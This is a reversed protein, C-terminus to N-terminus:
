KRKKSIVFCSGAFALVIAAVSVTSGCGSKAPETTDAPAQTADNGPAETADDGPAETTIEETTAAETTIEETTTAAIPYVYNEFAIADIAKQYYFGAYNLRPGNGGRLDTEGSWELHYYEFTHEGATLHAKINYVYGPVYLLYTGDAECALGEAMTYAYTYDRFILPSDSINVQYKQGGDISYSFGRDKADNGVNEAKIQAAGVIVFEYEGSEPVTFKYVMKSSKTDDHCNAWTMNYGWTGEGFYSYDFQLQDKYAAEDFDSITIIRTGAGPAKAETLTLDYEQCDVYVADDRIIALGDRYMVLSSAFKVDATVDIATCGEPAAAASVAVLSLLMAMIITTVLIKKM